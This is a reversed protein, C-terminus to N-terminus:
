QYFPTNKSLPLENTISFTGCKGGGLVDKEGPM